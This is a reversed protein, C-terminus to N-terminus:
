RASRDIGGRRWGDGQGTVVFAKGVAAPLLRKVRDHMLAIQEHGLLDGINESRVRRLCDSCSIQCWAFKSMSVCRAFRLM